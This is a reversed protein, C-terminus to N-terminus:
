PMALAVTSYRTYRNLSLYCGSSILLACMMFIFGGNFSGTSNVVFGVVIPAFFGGIQGGTSIFGVFAAREPAPALDLAISGYPGFGGYLFFAACCLGIMCPGIDSASYALYLSLAALAYGVGVLQGRYRYFTHSGLWGFVLLGFFGFVYPISAAYGLTKLDIHRAMALYGPMWGLFGWFGVNFTLYAIFLLWTSPRRLLAKWGIKHTEEVSDARVLGRKDNPLVYWLLLAMAFGPLAFILFLNEWGTRGLVWVALPAVCAPGLALATNWYGAAKAREKSSFNDGIIKYFSANSSGESLGFCLRVAILAEVTHVMGTLGTFISWVLPACVLLTKAGFRDALFGGPMQMFAYGLTFAALILGFSGADISLSKMMTPGAVSINVRDLYNVFQLLWIFFILKYRSSM